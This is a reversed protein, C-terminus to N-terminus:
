VCPPPLIRTPLARIGISQLVLMSFLLGSSFHHSFHSVRGLPRSGGSLSLFWSLVALGVRVLLPSPDLLFLLSFLFPLRSRCFFPLLPFFAPFACCLILGLPDVKLSM